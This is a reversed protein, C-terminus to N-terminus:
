QGRAPAHTSVSKFVIIGRVALIAGERPCSNFSHILAALDIVAILQGRAPAHTSVLLAIRKGAEVGINGGRPPMLQFMILPCRSYPKGSIAGERPCSNFSFDKFPQRSYTRLNGGRPPMLQFEFIMDARPRHYIAGERPCSNFGSKFPCYLSESIYQGRAPAHTSVACNRTIDHGYNLQGRAPAHTSVEFQWPFNFDGQNGGRPPMLQFRVCSMIYLRMNWQGRAPAHTSVSDTFLEESVGVNGGRPPMLQFLHYVILRSLM